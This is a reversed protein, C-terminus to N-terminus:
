LRILKYFGQLEGTDAVSKLEQEKTIVFLAGTKSSSMHMCATMIADVQERSNQKHKIKSLRDKIQEMNFRSGVSYFFNRIEEQFIVIM